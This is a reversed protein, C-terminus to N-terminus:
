SPECLAPALAAAEGRELTLPGLLIAGGTGTVVATVRASAPEKESFQLRLTAPVSGTEGATTTELTGELVAEGGAGVEWAGTFLFRRCGALLEVRESELRLNVTDGPSPVITPAAAGSFGLTGQIPGTGTGGTGPGCAALAAVLALLAARM